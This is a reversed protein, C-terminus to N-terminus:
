PVGISTMYTRLRNYLALQGAAGLSAGIFAACITGAYSLDLEARNGILVNTSYPPASSQSGSGAHAGNEYIDINTASTRDVVILGTGLFYVITTDSTNNIDAYLSGFANPVLITYGANTSTGILAGGGPTYVWGSSSGSNQIFHPSPATAPNFGTSLYSNATNFGSFGQYPTFVLTGTRPGPKELAGVQTLGYSTGILNLKADAENQQALVYLCDLKAWVGDSVLGDILTAINTANGGENGGVTRALYALAQASHSPAGQGVSPGGKGSRHARRREDDDEYANRMRLFARAQSLREDDDREGPRRRRRPLNNFISLEDDVM